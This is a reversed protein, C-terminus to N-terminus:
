SNEISALVSMPQLALCFSFSSNLFFGHDVAKVCQMAIFCTKKRWILKNKLRETHNFLYMINELQLYSYHVYEYSYSRLHM